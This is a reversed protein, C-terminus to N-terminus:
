KKKDYKIRCAITGEKVDHFLLSDWYIHGFLLRKIHIQIYKNNTPLQRISYLEKIVFVGKVNIQKRKMKITQM